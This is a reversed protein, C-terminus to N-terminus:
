FNGGFRRKETIVNVFAKGERVRQRLRTYALRKLILVVGAVLGFIGFFVCVLIITQSSM